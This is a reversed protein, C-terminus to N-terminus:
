PPPSTALVLDRANNLARIGDKGRVTSSGTGGAETANFGHQYVLSCALTTILQEALPLQDQEWIRLAIQVIPKVPYNLATLISMTLSLPKNVNSANAYRSTRTKLDISCGVYIPSQIQRIDESPDLSTNCRRSFSFALARISELESDQELFRAGDPINSTPAVDSASLPVGIGMQTRTHHAKLVRYGKVYKDIGDVSARTERINLFKGQQNSRCLGVVYVGPVKGESAHPMPLWKAEGTITDHAVTSLVIARLATRDMSHLMHVMNWGTVVDSQIARVTQVVSFKHRKLVANQQLDKALKPLELALEYISDHDELASWLQRQQNGGPMPKEATPSTDIPTPM